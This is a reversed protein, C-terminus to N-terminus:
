APVRRRDEGKLVVRAAMEVLRSAVRDGLAAGLEKPPVNSTFITALEHEYRWNILRYNIEEVWESPKAAGLDDLLLLPANAISQFEAESDVGHRPRLRAYLDAATMAAWRSRVGATALLRLAGYAQHTKGIGTRGLLLISPGRKIALGNPNAVASSTIQEAWAIVGPNDAIANAYRAPIHESAYALAARAHEDHGYPDPDDIPGPPIANLDIGRRLFFEELAARLPLLEAV